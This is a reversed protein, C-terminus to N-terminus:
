KMLLMKKTISQNGAELRYFYAGSAVKSGDFSAQYAGANQHGSFITAIEEGAVNFVKLTVNGSVPVTYNIQTSPNFPNPYNQGLTYEVPVTSGPIQKVSLTNNIVAFDESSKWTALKAPFWNLDGVPYGRMGATLLTANSYALNETLPWAANLDYHFGWNTNAGVTYEDKLFQIISDMQTAEVTFSPNEGDYINSMKMFPHPYIDPDFFGASRLNMIPEALLLRNVETYPVSDNYTDYFTQFQPNTYNSNNAFLIVRDMENVTGFGDNIPANLTDVNLVAGWLYQDPDQGPRDTAREGTFCSNVFINNTCVLWTWYSEQLAFKSINLFTNHNYYIRHVPVGQTQFTFGMNAFTNNECWVTDGGSGAEFYIQRGSWWQTPDIMNRFKCNTFTAGFHKGLVHMAPAIDWDFIVNDFTGRLGEVPEFALQNWYTAGGNDVMFMWVNKLTLDGFCDFNENYYVGSVAGPMIVAPGLDTGSTPAPGGVIRIHTGTKVTIWGNLYYLGGRSLGYWRDPNTRSGDALTDGEIVSNITGIQLDNPVWVTDVAASVKGMAAFLLMLTFLFLKKM